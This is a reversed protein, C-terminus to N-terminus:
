RELGYLQRLLILGYLLGFEADYGSKEFFCLHLSSNFFHSSFSSFFDLIKLHPVENQPKGYRSRCLSPDISM